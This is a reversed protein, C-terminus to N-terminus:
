DLLNTINDVQSGAVGGLVAGIPGGVVGGVVSLISPIAAVVADGAVDLATDTLLETVANPKKPIAIKSKGSATAKKPTRKPQPNATTKANRVKAAVNGAAELVNGSDDALVFIYRQKM